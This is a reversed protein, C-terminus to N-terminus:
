ISRIFVRQPFEVNTKQAMQKGVVVLIRGRKVVVVQVTQLADYGKRAVPSLDSLRVLPQGLQLERRTPEAVLDGEGPGVAIAALVPDTQTNVNPTM